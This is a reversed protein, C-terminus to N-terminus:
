SWKHAAIKTIADIAAQAAPTPAGLTMMNPEQQVPPRDNLTGSCAQIL